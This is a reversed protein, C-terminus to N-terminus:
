QEFRVVLTMIYSSTERKSTLECVTTNIEQIRPKEHKEWDNFQTEVNCFDDRHDGTASFIKIPM